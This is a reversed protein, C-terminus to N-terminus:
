KAIDLGVEKFADLVLRDWNKIIWEITDTFFPKPYDQVKGKNKRGIDWDNWDEIGRNLISALMSRRDVFKNGHILKSPTYQMENPSYNIGGVIKNAIERASTIMWAKDRFEYTREYKSPTYTSYIDIDIFEILASYIDETILDIAKKIRKNLETQLQTMNNINM